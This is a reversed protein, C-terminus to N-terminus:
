DVRAKWKTYKGDVKVIHRRPDPASATRAGRKRSAPRFATFIRPGRRLQQHPNSAGQAELLPHRKGNLKRSSQGHDWRLQRYLSGLYGERLGQDENLM